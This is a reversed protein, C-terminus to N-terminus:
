AENEVFTKFDNLYKQSQKKFAGPMLLGFLKMIGKFQFENETFYRTTNDDVAEFHNSVINYVGKTDYSATFNRPLDWTTITEIMVIERKGMKYTLRSRLGAKGREGEIIEASIFGEQWKPLNAEEEFLAIVKKIPANIIVENSYKM